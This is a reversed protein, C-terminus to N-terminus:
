FCKEKLLVDKNRLVWISYCMDNITEHFAPDNFDRVEPIIERLIPHTKEVFLLLKPM